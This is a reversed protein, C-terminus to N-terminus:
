IVGGSKIKHSINKASLSFIFIFFTKTAPVGVIDFRM